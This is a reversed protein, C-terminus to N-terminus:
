KKRKNKKKVGTVIGDKEKGKKVNITNHSCREEKFKKRVM